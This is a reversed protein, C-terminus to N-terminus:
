PTSHLRPLLGRLLHPETYRKSGRTGNAEMKLSPESFLERNLSGKEKQLGTAKTFEGERYKRKLENRRLYIIDVAFTSFM